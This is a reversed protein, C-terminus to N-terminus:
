VDAEGIKVFIVDRNDDRNHFCCSAAGEPRSCGLTECRPPAFACGYCAMWVGPTPAQARYGEPAEMPNIEGM